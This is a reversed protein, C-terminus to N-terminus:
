KERAPMLDPNSKALRELYSLGMPGIYSEPLSYVPDALAKDLSVFKYGLFEIEALLDPLFEANLRNAHLLLIHRIPGGLDNALKEAEALREMIHDIYENGLRVIEVSDGAEAITEFQLNYVYDETDITVHAVRYGQTELYDAVAEKSSSNNGYHLYPYRFYRAEQGAQDLIDKIAEAGKVIDQIYFAPPIENLDPHSWTHNGITHGAEIWSAIIDEDGEIESGIVFGAATVNYEELVGLIEDTIMLRKIRDHVRVVPLDDFTICIQKQAQKGKKAVPSSKDQAWGGTVLLLALCIMKVHLRMICKTYKWRRFTLYFM